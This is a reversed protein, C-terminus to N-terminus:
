RFLISSSYSPARCRQLLQMLRLLSKTRAQQEGLITLAKMAKFGPSFDEGEHSSISNKPNTAVPAETGELRFLDDGGEKIVQRRRMIIAAAMAFTTRVLGM